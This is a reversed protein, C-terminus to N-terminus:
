LYKKLFSKKVMGRFALSSPSFIAPFEAMAHSADVGTRPIRFPDGHPQILGDEMALALRYGAQRVLSVTRETHSGKPYAFYEVARGLEAELARKSGAIEERLQREGLRSLDAHTAGHSGITWGRQALARMEGSKLFVRDTGLIRRKARGRDSLVFLAPRIGKEDLFGAAQLVDRYGDDFTVIFAPRDIGKGGNLYRDLDPLTAPAFHRLMYEMQDEFARLGVGFRWGDGNISHYCLVVLRNDRRLGQDVAGLFRYILRRPTIYLEAFTRKM